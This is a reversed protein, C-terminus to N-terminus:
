PAEFAASLMSVREIAASNRGRPMMTTAIV